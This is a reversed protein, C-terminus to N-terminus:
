DCAKAAKKSKKPGQINGRHMYWIPLCSLPYEVLRRASSSPIFRQSGSDTECSGLGIFPLFLHFACESVVTDVVTDIGADVISVVAIWASKLGVRFSCDHFFCKSVVANVPSDIPSAIADIPANVPFAVSDIPSGDLMEGAGPM